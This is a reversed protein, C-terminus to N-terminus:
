QWPPFLCLVLPKQGFESILREFSTSPLLPAHTMYGHVISPERKARHSAIQSIPDESQSSIAVRNPYTDFTTISSHPICKEGVDGQTCRWLLIDGVLIVRIDPPMSLSIGARRLTAQQNPNHLSPSLAEHTLPRTMWLSRLEHERRREACGKELVTLLSGWLCRDGQM